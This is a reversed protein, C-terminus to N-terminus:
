VIAPDSRLQHTPSVPTEIRRFCFACVIAGFGLMTAGVAVHTTAIDAAKNSWITWAGLGLQVSVGILWATSLGCLPSIKERHACVFFWIVGIAILIAGFRHAMQLWIQAASVDSMGIRDRAANITAIAAPSTDPIWQGYATPFDTISLDRHQHRMTAGLALQLYIFVTTVLAIVLRTKGDTQAPSVGAVVAGGRARWSRSTVLAIIVMLAFFAQALCAHFIGIQDQLMTVRL